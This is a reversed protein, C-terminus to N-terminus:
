GAREIARELARRVYVPAMATRYEADAHIDTAASQGDLAHAAAAEIDAQGGDTGVLADEVGRARFFIDAAGTIAVRAHNVSGSARGVVAAVGVLSYGSARQTLEVWAMGAGAPPAPLHLATVIEDAGLVTSFAGDVLEDAAVRRSGSASRIEVEGDLAMALIPLVSAPDAHALAGGITGLNRVQVDGIDSIADRLLPYTDCIAQHELVDAYTTLAGVRFGGNAASIGRLEAIRGIDILRDPMALRFKMLPILSQGGALLKADGDAQLMSLAEDLSSARRYDVPAPIM